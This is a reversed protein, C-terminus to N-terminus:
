NYERRDDVLKQSEQDSEINLQICEGNVSVCEVKALLRTDRNFALINDHVCRIEAIIHACEEISSTNIFAMVANLEKKRLNEMMISLKM